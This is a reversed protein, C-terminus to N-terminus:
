FAIGEKFNSFINLIMEDTSASVPMNTRSLYGDQNPLVVFYSYQAHKKDAKFAQVADNVSLNALSENLNPVDAL